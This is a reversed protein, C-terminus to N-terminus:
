GFEARATRWRDAFPVFTGPHLFQRPRDDGRLYITEYLWLGHAQGFAYRAAAGDLLQDRDRPGGPLRRPIGRV